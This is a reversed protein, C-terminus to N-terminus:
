LVTQYNETKWIVPKSIHSTVICTQQNANIKSKSLELYMTM